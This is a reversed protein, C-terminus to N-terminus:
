ARSPHRSARGLRRLADLDFTLDRASQFREAPEKELCHHITRNLAPALRMDSLTLTPPDEKLIANMTEVASGGRFAHTGTLMEYLVAGFSFIDSRHDAAAGRVQEPSMYGPSGLVLGDATRAQTTAAATEASSPILRALGFDLIKVHGDATVFINEPKLDRHVIGKDHAAALARVIQIALEIARRPPLPGSELRERLTSGELLEMVADTVGNARGFDHIALIGPHSLAAIAQAEREFRALRDPDAAFQGPLVKIAVFRNLKADRARYVEGMGGAGIPGIVEYPGLRTGPTLTM